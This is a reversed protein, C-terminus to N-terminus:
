RTARRREAHELRPVWDQGTWEWVDSRYFGNAYGGFLVLRQAVPDWAISGNERVDPDLTDPNSDIRTWRSATGDWEWTDNAYFQRLAKGTPDGPEPEARLGGFLLAKGTVPNVEIQPGFRQGPTDTVTLKTWGTGSFSWMDSYRTVREDVSGRGIGGYLIIKQQLPDYWIGMLSRNPPRSKSDTKVETWETGNWTWTDNRFNDTNYGGFLVTKKLKPDYVMGAFQRIQPKKKLDPFTKWASGDWEFTESGTCTVVLKARDSDFAALSNACTTPGASAPFWQGNRYGWLDTYFVTSTEDLGGFMWITNTISDTEFAAQSRPPPRLNFFAERWVTDRLLNTQSGLVTAFASTGGYAIVEHRLPDYAVAQGALRSFANITVQTWTNGANDWEWVEEAAPTDVSCIGGFFAVRGTHERYVMHGDNVCTPMKVPTVAAWTHAVPDFRFMVPATGDANLGLMLTQNNAADYEVIPKAVNPGVSADTVLHWQQGDFEWTDDLAIFSAGDAALVTGGYMVVRDRTSDYAIAGNQRVPPKETSDIATWNDDAYVWTDNLYTPVAKADTQAVRGGFMVVRNRKTDYTMSHIARAPPTTAPFRQLWRSGNWLWTEASDHQVGTAPDNPGLGGFLVGVDNPIDWAMRAQTRPSPNSAFASAGLLVAVAFLVARKPTLVGM